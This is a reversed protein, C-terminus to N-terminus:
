IKHRKRWRLPTQGTLERFFNTLHAQDCLGIQLAINTLSLDTRMMLSCAKHLRQQKVYQKPTIGLASKFSRSFQGTSMHVVGSLAKISLNKDLHSGVFKQIHEIQMRTLSKSVADLDLEKDSILALANNILQRSALPDSILTHNASTLIGVLTNMTTSPLKASLVNENTVLSM